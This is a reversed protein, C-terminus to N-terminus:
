PTFIHDSILPLIPNEGTQGRRGSLAIMALYEVPVQCPGRGPTVVQGEAIADFCLVKLFITQM